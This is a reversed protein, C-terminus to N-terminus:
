EPRRFPSTARGSNGFSAMEDWSLKTTDEFEPIFRREKPGPGLGGERMLQQLRAFHKRSGSANATAGQTTQKAMNAKLRSFPVDSERKIFQSFLAM